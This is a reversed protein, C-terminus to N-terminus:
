LPLHSIIKTKADGTNEEYSYIDEPEGTPKTPNKAKIHYFWETVFEASEIVGQLIKDKDYESRVYVIEGIKYKPEKM